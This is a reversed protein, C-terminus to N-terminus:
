RESYFSCCCKINYIKVIGRTESVLILDLEFHTQATTVSLLKDTCQKQRQNVGIINQTKKKKVL